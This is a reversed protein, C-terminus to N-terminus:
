SIGLQWALGEPDTTLNQCAYGESRLPDGQRRERPAIRWLPYSGGDEEDDLACGAVVKNSPYAAYITNILTQTDAEGPEGVLAVEQPQSISFDLVTGPM